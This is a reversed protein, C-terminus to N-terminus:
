YGFLIQADHPMFFVAQQACELQAMAQGIGYNQYDDKSLMNDSVEHLTVRLSYNGITITYTAGNEISLIESNWHFYHGPKWRKKILKGGDQQLTLRNTNRQKDPHWLTIPKSAVYCFHIKEAKQSIDLENVDFTKSSKANGTRKGGTDLIEKIKELTEKVSLWGDQKPMDKIIKRQGNKIIIINNGEQKIEIKDAAIAPSQLLLYSVLLICFKGINKM